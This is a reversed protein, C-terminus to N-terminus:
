HVRSVVFSNAARCALGRKGSIRKEMKSKGGSSTCSTEARTRDMLKPSALSGGADRRGEVKRERQLVMNQQTMGVSVTALTDHM